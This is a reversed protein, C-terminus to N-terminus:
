ALCHLVAEDHLATSPTAPTPGAAPCPTDPLRIFRGTRCGPSRAGLDFSLWSLGSPLHGVRSPQLRALVDPPLYGHLQIAVSRTLM